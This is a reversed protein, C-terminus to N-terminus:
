ALKLVFEARGKADLNRSKIRAIQKLTRMTDIRHLAANAAVVGARWAASERTHKSRFRTFILKM